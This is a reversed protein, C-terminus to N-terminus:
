RFSVSGTKNTFILIAVMVTLTVIMEPGDCSCKKATELDAFFGLM